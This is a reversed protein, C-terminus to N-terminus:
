RTTPTAHAPGKLSQTRAQISQQAELLRTGLDLDAQTVPLPETPTKPLRRHWDTAFGEVSKPSSITFNKRESERVGEVIALKSKGNAQNILRKVPALWQMAVWTSPKEFLGAPATLGSAECFAQVVERVETDDRKASPTSRPKRIAAALEKVLKAKDRLSLDLKIGHQELVKDVRLAAEQDQTTTM